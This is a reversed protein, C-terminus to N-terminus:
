TVFIGAFKIILSRRSLKRRLITLTASVFGTRFIEQMFSPCDWHVHRWDSQLNLRCSIHLLDWSLLRKDDTYPKWILFPVNKRNSWKNMKYHSFICKLCLNEHVRKAGGFFYLHMMKFHIYIEILFTYEQIFYRLLHKKKIEAYFDKGKFTIKLIM